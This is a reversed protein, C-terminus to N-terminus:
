DSYKQFWNSYQDIDHNPSISLNFSNKDIPRGSEKQLFADPFYFCNIPGSWKEMVTNKKIFRKLRGWTRNAEDSAPYGISKYHNGLWSLCSRALSGEKECGLDYFDLTIVETCTVDTWPRIQFEYIQSLDLGNVEWHDNETVQKEVSQNDKIRVIVTLPQGKIWISHTGQSISPVRDEFKFKISDKLIDTCVIWMLNPQDNIWETLINIDSQTSYLITAPM